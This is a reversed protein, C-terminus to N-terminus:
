DDKGRLQALLPLLNTPESREEYSFAIEAFAIQCNRDIVFRAQMPNIWPETGRFSLLDLGLAHEITRADEAPWRIGYQVALEGSADELVPFNLGLAHDTPRDTGPARPRSIALVCPALDNAEEILKIFAQLDAQCYPCWLGRYFTVVLPASELHDDLAVFTDDYAQLRFRPAEDGVKLPRAREEEAILKAIAEGLTATRSDALADHDSVLEDIKLQLSM